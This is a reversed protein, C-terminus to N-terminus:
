LIDRDSTCAEKLNFGLYFNCSGRLIREWEGTYVEVYRGHGGGRGCERAGFNKM